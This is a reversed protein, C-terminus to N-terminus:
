CIEKGTNVTCNEFEMKKGNLKEESKLHADKKSTKKFKQKADRQNEGPKLLHENTKLLQLFASARLM